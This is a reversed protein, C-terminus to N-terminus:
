EIMFELAMYDKTSLNIGDLLDASVMRLNVDAECKCLEEFQDSKDENESELIKKREEEYPELEKILTKINASIAVSLTVPVDKDKAVFANVGNVATVMEINTMKKM